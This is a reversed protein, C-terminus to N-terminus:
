QVQVRAETLSVEVPAGTADQASASVLRVVATGPRTARFRALAVPGSGSAGIGPPLGTEVEVETTGARKFTFTPFQGSQALLNGVNVSRYELIGDGDWALVFTVRSLNTAGKAMVMLNFEKEPQVLLVAPAVSLTIPGTAGAPAPPAEAPPVTGEGPVPVPLPPQEV